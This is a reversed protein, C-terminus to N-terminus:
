GEPAGYSRIFAGLWQELSPSLDLFELGTHYYLTGEAGRHNVRSHVVRCRMTVCEADTGLQLFCPSGLQLLGQHEVLAGELSLDLVEAEQLTTIAATVGAVRFRPPTRNDFDKRM